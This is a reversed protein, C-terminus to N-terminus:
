VRGLNSTCNLTSHFISAIYMCTQLKRFGVWNLASIHEDLSYENNSFNEKDKTKERKAQVSTLFVGLKMDWLSSRGLFAELFLM